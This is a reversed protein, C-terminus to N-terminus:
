ALPLGAGKQQRHARDCRYPAQCTRDCKTRDSRPDCPVWTLWVEKLVGSYSASPRNIFYDKRAVPMTRILAQVASLPRGSLYPEGM